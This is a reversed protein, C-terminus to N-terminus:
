CSDDITLGLLMWESVYVLRLRNAGARVQEHGGFLFLHSYGVSTFVDQGKGRM